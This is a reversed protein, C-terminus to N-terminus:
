AIIVASGVGRVFFCYDDLMFSCVRCIRYAKLASDELLTEFTNWAIGAAPLSCHGIM